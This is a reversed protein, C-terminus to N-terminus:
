ANLYGKMMGAERSDVQNEELADDIGGDTYIDKDEMYVTDFRTLNRIQKLFLKQIHTTEHM